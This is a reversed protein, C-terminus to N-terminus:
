DELSIQETIQAGSGPFLDGFGLDTVSVILTKADRFSADMSVRTTRNERKPFDSLVM